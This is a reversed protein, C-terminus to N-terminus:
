GYKHFSDTQQVNKRYNGANENKTYIILFTIISYKVKQLKETVLRILGIMPNDFNDPISSSCCHRM